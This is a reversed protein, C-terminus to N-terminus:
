DWNKDEKRKKTTQSNIVEGAQPVGEPLPVIRQM